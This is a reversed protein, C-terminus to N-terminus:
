HGPKIEADERQLREYYAAAADFDSNAPTYSYGGQYHYTITRNDYNVTVAVVGGSGSQPYTVSGSQYGLAPMAVQTIAIIGVLVLPIIRKM